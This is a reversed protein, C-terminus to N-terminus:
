QFHARSTTIMNAPRLARRATHASERREIPPAAASGDRRRAVSARVAAEGCSGSCRTTRSYSYAAVVGSSSNASRAGCRAACRARASEHRRSPRSSSPPANPSAGSPPRRTKLASLSLTASNARTSGYTRAFTTLDHLTREHVMTTPASGCGAAQNQQAAFAEAHERVDPTM